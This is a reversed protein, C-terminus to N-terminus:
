RQWKKSRWIIIIYFLYFVTFDVPLDSDRTLRKLVPIDMLYYSASIILAFLFVEFRVLYRQLFYEHSDREINIFRAIIKHGFYFISGQVTILTLWFILDVEKVPTQVFQKFIYFCAFMLIPYLVFWTLLYEFLYFGIWFCGAMAEFFLRILSKQSDKGEKNFEQIEMIRGITFFLAVLYSDNKSSKASNYFNKSSIPM